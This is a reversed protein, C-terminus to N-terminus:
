SYYTIRRPRFIPRYTLNRDFKKNRDGPTEVKTQDTGRIQARLRSVSERRAVPEIHCESILERITQDFFKSSSRFVHTGLDAQLLDELISPLIPLRRNIGIALLQLASDSQHFGELRYPSAAQRSRTRANLPPYNPSKPIPGHQCGSSTQQDFSHQTTHPM